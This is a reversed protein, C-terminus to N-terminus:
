SNAVQLMASTEEVSLQRSGLYIHQSNAIWTSGLNGDPWDNYWYFVLLWTIQEYWRYTLPRPSGDASDLRILNGKGLFGQALDPMLLLEETVAFTVKLATQFSEQGLLTVLDQPVAQHAKALRCGFNKVFFKFLNRQDAEFERGFVDAFNIFRKHLVIDENAFIWSVFTDYARDFPQTRTTNCYHCLNKDYKVCRSNPGQIPTILDGVIHVLNSDGQLAGRERARVLDKKKFKHEASDAPSHCMWCKEVTTVKKM